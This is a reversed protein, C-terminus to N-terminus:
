KSREVISQFTEDDIQIISQPVGIELEKMSSLPLPKEFYEILDFKIVLLAGRHRDVMAQIQRQTYVTRGHTESFISGVDDIHKAEIVGALVEIRKRNRSLYFLLLDGPEIKKTNSGCLYAKRITNSEPGWFESSNGFLSDKFKSIDPFLKESYEPQIPIIFKNVSSDSKFTPYFLRFFNAKDLNSEEHSQPKLYKVFVGDDGYYGCQRFGFGEAFEILFAQEKIRATFYVVTASISKAFQMATFLLREGLKSGQHEASVKFTCLKLIKGNPVFGDDNIVEGVEEKYICIARIAGSSMRSTWAQRQNKAAKRYWEDFGVYSDRLSDFIDDEVPIQYLFENNIAVPVLEPMDQVFSRVLGELGNIDLVSDELNSRKAKRTLRIDNTIFFHVAGRYVSFLLANDVQDNPSTNNWNLEDLDLTTPIPPDVLLNYQRIRSLLLERRMTNSDRNVDDRQMPHYYFRVNGSALRKIDASTGSLLRSTDEFDILVNTDLLINLM